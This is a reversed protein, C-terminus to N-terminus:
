GGSDPNANLNEIVRAADELAERTRTAEVEAQTLAEQADQVALHADPSESAEAQQVAQELATQAAVVAAAAEEAATRAAMFAAGAADMREEWTPAPDPEVPETKGPDVMEEPAKGGPVTLGDGELTGRAKELLAARENAIREAETAEHEREEHRLRSEAAVQAAKEAYHEAEEAARLAEEARAADAANGSQSAAMAAEEAERRAVDAGERAENAQRTAEESQERSQDAAQRAKDAHDAAEEAHRELVSVDPEVPVGTAPDAGPVPSGPSGSGPTVTGAPAAGSAPPPTVPLGRGPAISGAPGVPRPAGPGQAVGGPQPVPVPVPQPVPPPAGFSAIGTARGRGKGSVFQSSITWLTCEKADLRRLNTVIGQYPQISTPNRQAIDLGMVLSESYLRYNQLTKAVMLEQVILPQRLLHRDNAIKAVKTDAKPRNVVDRFLGWTIRDGVHVVRRVADPIWAVTTLKEPDFPESYLVQRGRRFELIRDGEYEESVEIAYTKLGSLRIDQQPWLLVAAATRRAGRHREIAVADDFRVDYPAAIKALVMPDDVDNVVLTAEVRHYGGAALSVVALHDDFGGQRLLLEHRGSEVALSLPTTGRSVGDVVVEATPFSAVELTAWNGTETRPGCATLALSMGLVVALASTLLARTTSQM